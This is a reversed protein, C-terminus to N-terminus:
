LWMYIYNLIISTCCINCTFFCLNLGKKLIQLFSKWFYNWITTNVTVLMLDNTSNVCIFGTDVHKWTLYLELQGVPAASYEYVLCPRFSLLPFTLLWAALLPVAVGVSGLVRQGGPRFGFPPVGAGPPAVGAWPPRGPDWEPVAFGGGTLLWRWLRHLSSVFWLRIQCFCNLWLHFHNPAFEKNKLTM